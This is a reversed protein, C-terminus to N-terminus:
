LCFLITGKRTGMKQSMLFLILILFRKMLNSLVCFYNEKFLALKFIGLHVARLLYRQLQSVNNFTCSSIAPKYRRERLLCSLFLVDQNLFCSISTLLSKTDTEDSRM